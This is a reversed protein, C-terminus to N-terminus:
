HAPPTSPPPAPSHPSASPAAPAAPNLFREFAELPQAGGIFEGNAIVVPTSTIGLTHADRLDSELRKETKRQQVCDNLQDGNLGNRSAWSKLRSALAGSDGGTVQSAFFDDHLAWFAEAKQERACETALAMSHALPHVNTLPLHKYYLRVKGPYKAMLATLTEHLKKCFPCQFDSFEILTLPASSGGRPVRGELDFDEIKYVVKTPQGIIGATLNKETATDIIQGMILKDGSVYFVGPKRKGMADMFYHVEWLGPIPSPRWQDIVIRGGGQSEVTKKLFQEVKTKESPANSAEEAGTPVVFVALTLAGLLLAAMFTYACARRM